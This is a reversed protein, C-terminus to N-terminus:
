NNTTYFLNTAMSKRVTDLCNAWDSFAANGCAKGEIEDHWVLGM